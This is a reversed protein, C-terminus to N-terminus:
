SDALPMLVDVEGQRRYHEIIPRTTDRPRAAELRGVAPAIGEYLAPPEGRLRIRLYRGGPIDGTALGLRIPQDENRQQVCVRYVHPEAEATGFFRRGRLDGLLNELRRWGETIGAQTDAVELFMVNVPERHVESIGNRMDSNTM